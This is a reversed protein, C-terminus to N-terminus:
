LYSTNPRSLELGRSPPLSCASPSTTLGPQTPLHDSPPPLQHFQGLEVLGALEAGDFWFIGRRLRGEERRWESAVRECKEAIAVVSSSGSVFVMAGFVEAVRVTRTILDKSYRVSFDRTRCM